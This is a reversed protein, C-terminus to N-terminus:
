NILSFYFVKFIYFYFLLNSIFLLTSLLIFFKTLLYFFTTIFADNIYIFVFIFFFVNYIVKFFLFTILIFRVIIKNKLAYFRILLYLIYLAKLSLFLHKLYKFFVKLIILM